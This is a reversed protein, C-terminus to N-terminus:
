QRRKAVEPMELYSRAARTVELCSKTTVSLEQYGKCNKHYQFGVKMSVYNLISQLCYQVETAKLIFIFARINCHQLEDLM